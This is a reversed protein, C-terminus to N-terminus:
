SAQDGDGDFRPLRLIVPVDHVQNGEAVQKVFRRGNQHSQESRGRRFGGLAHPAPSPPGLGERGREMARKRMAQHDYRGRGMPFFVFELRGKMHSMSYWKEVRIFVPFPLWWWRQNAKLHKVEIEILARAQKDLMLDSQAILLVDYGFHRHESLFRLLELRKGQEDRDGNWGSRSNLIRHAEDIIVLAQSEKGSDSWARAREMFYAPTMEDERVYDWRKPKTIPFNAIVGGPRRQAMLGDEVAHLTKGSGPTGSYLRITM